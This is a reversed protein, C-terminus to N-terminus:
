EENLVTVVPREAELLVSQTVSGFIAKGAPSRKRGGLVIYRPDKRSAVDLIEEIPNGVRGEYSTEGPSEVSQKTVDESVSAADREAYDITYQKGSSSSARNRGDGQQYSVEPAFTLAVNSPEDGSSKQHAEFVDTPMVHLVILEEGYQHALDAAITIAKDPVSEGNTAALVAM